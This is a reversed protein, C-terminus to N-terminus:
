RNDQYEEYWHKQIAELIQENVSQGELPEFDDLRMVLDRMETFRVTLPDRDPNQEYLALGIDEVDTWTLKAKM